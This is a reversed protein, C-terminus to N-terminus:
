IEMRYLTELKKFGLKNLRRESVNSHEGIMTVIHNANRRGFDIFDDMLMKSARTKPEAWLLDQYCITTTVDFTSPFTKVLMVGVPINGKYCVTVRYDRVYERIPFHRWNFRDGYLKAVRMGVFRFYDLLFQDDLDSRNIVKIRYETM